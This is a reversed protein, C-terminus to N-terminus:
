FCSKKISEAIIKSHKKILSSKISKNSKALDYFESNEDHIGLIIEEIKEQEKQLILHVEIESIGSNNEIFVDIPLYVKYKCADKVNIKSNVGLLRLEYMIPEVVSKKEVGEFSICDNASLDLYFFISLIFFIAKKM